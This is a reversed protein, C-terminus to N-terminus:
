GDVDHAPQDDDAMVRRYATYVNMRKGRLFGVLTLGFRGAWQVGMATPASFSALLPMGHAIAKGVIEASLRGTTLTIKQSLDVGRALAMGAVKDFANHRGVDEAVLLIGEADAIGCAHVGGTMRFLATQGAFERGLATLQSARVTMPSVIPPCDALRTYDRATGGGGCGTGFTWRRHISEVADQDFSGFCRVQGASADFHIEPLRKRNWWLGESVLFGLALAEVDRPLALMALLPVENLVLEIRQERVVKDTLSTQGSRDYRHIPWNITQEAAEADAQAASTGNVEDAARESQM